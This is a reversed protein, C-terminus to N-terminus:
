NCGIKQTGIAIDDYWIDSAPGGYKEFGFRLYDYADIKWATQHLDPVEVDNMWVDIAPAAHDLLIELCTWVGAPAAPGIKGDGYFNQNSMAAQADGIISEFIMQNDEGFLLNNGTGPAAFLDGRVLTNHKVTMGNLLRIYFRVYLKGGAVPLVSTDHLNLFTDYDNDTPVVHVSHVGSAAPSTGDVTVQGPSSQTTTWPAPPAGSAAAEFSDCFVLGPRAGCHSASAGGGAAGATGGGAAGGGGASGGGAGGAGARSGGTAPTGGTGGPPVTQGAAGGAGAAAGGAGLGGAGKFAGAAGGSASGSSGGSGCGVCLACALAIRAYAHRSARPMSMLEGGGLRVGCGGSRRDTLM